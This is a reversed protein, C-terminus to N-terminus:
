LKAVTAYYASSTYIYRSNDFCYTLNNFKVEIILLKITIDLSLNLTQDKVALKVYDTLLKQPQDDGILTDFYSLCQLSMDTSFGPALHVIQM